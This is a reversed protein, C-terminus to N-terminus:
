KEDAKGKEESEAFKNAISILGGIAVGGQVDYGGHFAFLTIAILGGAIIWLIPRKVKMRKHGGKAKLEM